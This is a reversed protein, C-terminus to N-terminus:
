LLHTLADLLKALFSDNREMPIEYKRPRDRSSLDVPKDQDDRGQIRFLGNDVAVAALDREDPPLVITEANASRAFRHEIRHVNMRDMLDNVRRVTEPPAFDPNPRYAVIQIIRKHPIALLEEAVGEEPVMTVAVEPLSEGLAWRSFIKQMISEVVTAGITKDLDNRAEIYMLHSRIDFVYEFVRFNPRAKEPINIKKREDESLKEQKDLDIWDGELDIDTWLHLRGVYLHRHRRHRIPKTIRAFDSGRAQVMIRSAKRLIRPYIKPPHPDAAINVAFVPVIRKRPM